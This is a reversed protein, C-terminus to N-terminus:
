RRERFGKFVDEASITNRSSSALRRRVEAAQEANLRLTSSDHKDMETLVRAADEQREQTWTLVRELIEKM